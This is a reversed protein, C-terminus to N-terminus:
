ARSNRFYTEDWAFCQEIEWKRHIIKPIHVYIPITYTHTYIHVEISICIINHIHIYKSAVDAYIHEPLVPTSWGLAVEQIIAGRGRATIERQWLFVKLKQRQNLSLLLELWSLHVLCTSHCYLCGSTPVVESRYTPLCATQVEEVRLWQTSQPWHKMWSIIHDCSHVAAQDEDPDPSREGSISVSTFLYLLTSVLSISM